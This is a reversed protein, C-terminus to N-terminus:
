FPVKAPNEIYRFIFVTDPNRLRGSGNRLLIRFVAVFYYNFFANFIRRNFGILGTLPSGILGTLPSDMYKRYTSLEAILPFGLNQESMDVDRM